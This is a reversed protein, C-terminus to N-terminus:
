DLARSRVSPFLLLSGGLALAQGVMVVSSEDPTWQSHPVLLGACSLGLISVAPIWELAISGPAEIPGCGCGVTDTKQRLARLYLLFTVALAALLVRLPTSMISLPAVIALVVASSGILTEAIGLGIALPRVLAPPVLGQSKLITRLHRLSSLHSLGAIVLVAGPIALTYAGFASILEM